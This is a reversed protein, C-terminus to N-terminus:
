EVLKLLSSKEESLFEVLSALSSLFAGFCTQSTFEYTKFEQPAEPPRFTM